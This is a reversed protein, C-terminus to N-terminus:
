KEEEPIPPSFMIKKTSLQGEYKEKFYNHRRIAEAYEMKARVLNFERANINVENPENGVTNMQALMVMRSDPSINHSSGHVLSTHFFLADGPKADLIKVGHRKYLENLKVPSIMRKSLGNINIFPIHEIYGYRHTGPIINLAANNINHNELFIMCTIMEDKPYGRDKWYVLDQHYYEATGCWAAKMNVKSAWIYTKEGMLLSAIDVIVEDQLIKTLPNIDNRAVPYVALPVGPEQETWSKAKAEGDGRKMWAVAENMVKEQFLEQLFLYGNANFLKVDDKNILDKKMNSIKKEM